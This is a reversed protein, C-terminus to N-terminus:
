QYDHKNNTLWEDFPQAALLYPLRHSVEVEFSLLFLFTCRCHTTQEDDGSHHNRRQEEGFEVVDVNKYHQAGSQPQAKYTKDVVIDLHEAFVFLTKTAFVFYQTLNHKTDGHSEQNHVM